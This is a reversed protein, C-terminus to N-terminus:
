PKRGPLAAQDQQGPGGSALGPWNCRSGPWAADVGHAFSAPLYSDLKPRGHENAVFAALWGRGTARQREEEELDKQPLLAQLLLRSMDEMDACGVYIVHVFGHEQTPLFDPKHWPLRDGPRLTEVKIQESADKASPATPINFIELDRWFELIPLSPEASSTM